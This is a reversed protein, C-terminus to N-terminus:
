LTYIYIKLHLSFTFLRAKCILTQKHSHFNVCYGLAGGDDFVHIMITHQLVETVAGQQQAPPQVTM